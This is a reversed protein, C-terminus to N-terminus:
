ELLSGALRAAVDRDLYALRVRRKALGGGATDIELETMRYRRDFPNRALRVTQIRNRPVVALRRWLWGRHFLLLDPTLAWRTYRAYLHGHLLAVPLGAPLVALGPWGWWWLAPPLSLLAWCWLWLRTLRRRTRSSLPRWDPAARDLGPLARDILGSVQDPRCIPALPRAGGSQGPEAAGGALDVQLMVRRFLRHLPTALQHVVQIRPVRLTVTRRTFLGHRARLDDGDRDLTYDHYQVLATIVSLLKAVVLVGVLTALVLFIKLALGLQNVYAVGADRLAPGFLRELTEVGAVQFLSGIVAGLWFLNRNDILGMLILESVPLRLLPSAVADASPDDEHEQREEDGLARRRAFVAESLARAGAVSLVRITAEAGGGSSTEVKVDAVGLLRHLITRETDINEIRRYDIQRLNRFVLGERILLGDPGYDYRYVWQHWLGALPGLLLLPVLMWLAGGWEAGLAAAIGLPILAGLGGVLHFVWSLPHLRQEPVPHGNEYRM